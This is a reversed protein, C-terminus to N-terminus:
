KLLRDLEASLENLLPQLSVMDSDSSGEGPSLSRLSGTLDAVKRKLGALRDAPERRRTEKRIQDSTLGQSKFKRYLTMMGKPTKKQKAIEIL